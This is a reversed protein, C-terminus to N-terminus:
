CAFAAAHPSQSFSTFIIAADFRGDRLQEVFALERQPDFALAGSADQWLARHVITEDIWPLLPTIQAGARSALMVIKATPFANRLSRLAPGTMVCDGINDLRVVLLRDPPRQGLLM